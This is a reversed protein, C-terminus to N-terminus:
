YKVFSHETRVYTQFMIKRLFDYFITNSVFEDRCLNRFQSTAYPEEPPWLRVERAEPFFAM